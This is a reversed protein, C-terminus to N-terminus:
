ELYGLETLKDLCAQDYEAETAYQNIYSNMLSIAAERYEAKIVWRQGPMTSFHLANNNYVSAYGGSVPELVEDKLEEKM